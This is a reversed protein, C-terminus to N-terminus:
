GGGLMLALLAKGTLTRLEAVGRRWWWGARAGLAAVGHNMLQRRRLQQLAPAPNFGLVPLAVRSFPFSKVHLNETSGSRIPNTLLAPTAMAARMLKPM